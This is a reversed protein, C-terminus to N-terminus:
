AIPRERHWRLHTVGPQQIIATCRIGPEPGVAFQGIAAPIGPRHETWVGVTDLRNM